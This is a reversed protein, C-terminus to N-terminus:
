EVGLEKLTEDRHKIAESLDTFSKKIIVMNARRIQLYYYSYEKGKITRRTITINKHGSNSYCGKNANQQGQTAWRCNEKCYGQSNDIRDLSTGDPRPGMDSLFIDFSYIWDSCIDLTGYFYHSKHKKNLCREKMSRWSKYTTSNSM